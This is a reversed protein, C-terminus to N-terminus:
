ASARQLARIERRMEVRLQADLNSLPEDMLCVQTEAVIARGLAVRQQQGGSLQSPKRELLAELRPHRRRAQPARRARGRCTACRSGFVINEAVSLHPFLAYSQFVM